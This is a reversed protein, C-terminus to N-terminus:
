LWRVIELVVGAAALATAAPMEHEPRGPGSITVPRAALVDTMAPLLTLLQQRAVLVTIGFIAMTIGGGVMGATDYRLALAALLAADAGGWWGYAWAVLGASLVLAPASNGTLWGVGIIAPLMLPAAEKRWPWWVCLGVVPWWWPNRHLLSLACILLLPWLSLARRRLDQWAVVGYAAGLALSIGLHLWTPM